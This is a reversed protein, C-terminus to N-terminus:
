QARLGIEKTVPRDGEVAVQVRVRTIRAVDATPRGEGDLYALQFSTVGGILTNAGRDVERMLSPHGWQDRGLYYRVQNCLVVPSAAPFSQEVPRDLILADRRGAALRGEACREEACLVIRKGSRWDAGNEVRLEREGPSAQGRLATALGELNATFEVEQREAKLLGNGSPLSGTGALRVESELIALGLRLDQQRAITRHQARLREDFHHLTQITASLVVAGAALAIMVELLCIGAENSRARPSLGSPRPRESQSTRQTKFEKGRADTRRM